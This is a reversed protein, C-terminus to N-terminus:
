CQHFFLVFQPLFMSLIFTKFNLIRLCYHTLFYHVEIAHQEKEMMVAEQEIDMNRMLLDKASATALNVPPRPQPDYAGQEAYRQIQASIREQHSAYIDQPSRGPSPNAESLIAHLMRARHQARKATKIRVVMSEEQHIMQNHLRSESAIRDQALGALGAAYHPNEAGAQPPAAADHWAPPAAPLPPISTLSHHPYASGAPFGTTPLQGPTPELPRPSEQSFNDAGVNGNSLQRGPRAGMMVSAIGRQEVPSGSKHSGPSVQSISHLPPLPAMQTLTHTRGAATREPSRTTGPPPLPPLSHM